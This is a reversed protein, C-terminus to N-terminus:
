NGAADQLSVGNIKRAAQYIEDKVSDPVDDGLIADVAEAPEMTATLWERMVNVGDRYHYTDGAPDPQPPTAKNFLMPKGDDGCVFLKANLADQDKKALERVTVTVDGGLAIMMTKGRKRAAAAIQEVTAM